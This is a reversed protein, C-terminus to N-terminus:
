MIIAERIYHKAKLFCFHVIKTLSMWFMAWSVGEVKQPRWHPGWVGTRAGGRIEQLEVTSGRIGYLSCLGALKNYRDHGCNPVGSQMGRGGLFIGSTQFTGCAGLHPMLPDLSRLYKHLKSSM